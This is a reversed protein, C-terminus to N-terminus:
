QSAIVTFPIRYTESLHLETAGLLELVDHTVGSRTLGPQVVAIHIKAGRLRVRRKLARVTNPDGVEFRTGRPGSSRNADRRLLHDLLEEVQLHWHISRQAQGCVAYFEEVRAATTAAKAFKCHYLYILLQDDKVAIAVVDAAEGAGDDDFVIEFAPDQQAALVRIVHAQVSDMRKTVSTSSWQSEATIDTGTWDWAQIKSQQYAAQASLRFFHNKLLISNDIFRVLPPDEAFWDALTKRRQGMEVEAGILGQPVFQVDGQVFRMEYNASRSDTFVRFRIPGHLDHSILELGVEYFAVRQGGVVVYTATEPRTYFEEPWEIAVPIMHPRDTVLTPRVVAELVQPVQISPDLLKRGLEGCWDMWAPIDEAKQHSWIRGKRSCGISAREGNEFGRGFLNTNIKNRQQSTALGSGADPGAYMSFRIAGSVTDSLGINLLMLQHFGHLAKFPEDGFVIRVDLGAVAKALGEHVSSKDSSHIFLLSRERDWHVLFLHHIVDRIEDIAGWDMKYQERTVFMALHVRHNISPEAYLQDTGIYDVITDPNWVTCNTRYVVTSMKPFINQLPLAGVRPTFNELFDVRRAHKGTAEASRESLLVNWDADEAYLERLAEGVKPDAINAIVTAEGLDTRARTFRGTFQLTIALSKHPEHLAAIKLEPLDFGEGLMGVTVVIRVVGARLQRIVESQEGASLKSHILVPNHQPALVKYMDYIAEAREISEVRAMVVHRYGENLDSTLQDIAAKAIKEDEAQPRWEEVVRLTIPKFYGEEQAKRLPYSFVIRGDIHHRDTRFPTATFQVVPKGSAAFRSRFADWTAATLHHAEDVFLHTAAAIMAEQVSDEAQGAINMTTVIVNCAGFYTEVEERNRLKHLLTGVIPFEASDPLLAFRRLIGFEIFKGAIQERLASNPVVVLLCEPREAALLTVMTDTKGTGTPMVVTAPSTGVKWHSLVGYVAGIQPPRLGPLGDPTDERLALKGAWSERVASSRASLEDTRLSAPVTPSPHIWKPRGRRSLFEQEDIPVTGGPVYLVDYGPPPQRTGVPVIMTPRGLVDLVEGAPSSAGAATVETEGVFEPRRLQYIPNGAVIGQVAPQPPLYVQRTPMSHHAPLSSPANLDNTLRSAEFRRM